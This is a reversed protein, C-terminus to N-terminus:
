LIKLIDSHPKRKGRTPPELFCRNDWKGSPLPLTPQSVDEKLTRDQQKQGSGRKGPASAATAASIAATWATASSAESGRKSSEGLQASSVEGSGDGGGRPGGWLGPFCHTHAPIPTLLKGLCSEMLWVSFASQGRTQGGEM